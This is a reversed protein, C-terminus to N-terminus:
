ANKEVDKPPPAKEPKNKAAEIAARQQYKRLSAPALTAARKPKTPWLTGRGPQYDAMSAGFSFEPDGTLVAYWKQVCLGCWRLYWDLARYRGCQHCYNM